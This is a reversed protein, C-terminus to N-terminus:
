MVEVPLKAQIFRQTESLCLEVPDSSTFDGLLYLENTLTKLEWSFRRPVTTLKRQDDQCNNAGGPAGYSSFNTGMVCLIPHPPCPELSQNFTLLQSSADDFWGEILRM